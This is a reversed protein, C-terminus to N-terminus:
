STFQDCLESGPTCSLVLSMDERALSGALCLCVKNFNMQKSEIELVRVRCAIRPAGDQGTSTNYRAALFSRPLLLYAPLPSGGTCHEHRVRMSITCLGWLACRVSPFEAALM